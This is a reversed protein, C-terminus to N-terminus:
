NMSTREPYAMYRVRRVAEGTYAPMRQPQVRITAMCVVCDDCEIACLTRPINLTKEFEGLASLRLDRRTFKKRAFGNHLIVRPYLCERFFNTLAKTASGSGQVLSENGHRM